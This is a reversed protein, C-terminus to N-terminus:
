VSMGARQLEIIWPPAEKLYKEIHRRRTTYYWATGGCGVIAAFIVGGYLGIYAVKELSGISGMMQAIQPDNGIARDIESPGNLASWMSIVAYLILAGGLILQNTALKKPAQVDLRRIMKAGQLEFYAMVCMGAGLLLGTISFLSTILTLGGFIAITWGSMAAVNAARLIPRAQERAWAIQALHQPSAPTAAPSALHISAPALPSANLPM